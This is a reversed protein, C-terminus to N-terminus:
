KGGRGAGTMQAHLRKLKARVNSAHFRTFQCLRELEETRLFYLVERFGAVGGPAGSHNNSKGNVKWSKRGKWKEGFSEGVPSLRSWDERCIMGKELLWVYDRVAQLLVGAMLGRVADEQAVERKAPDRREEGTLFDCALIRM